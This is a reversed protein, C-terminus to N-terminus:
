LVSVNNWINFFLSKNTVVIKGCSFLYMRITLHFFFMSIFIWHVMVDREAGREGGRHGHLVGAGWRPIDGGSAAHPARWPPVNFVSQPAIIFMANFIELMILQKLPPFGLNYSHKNYLYKQAFLVSNLASCICPIQPPPNKIMFYLSKSINPPLYVFGSDSIMLCRPPNKIVSWSITKDSNKKTRPHTPALLLTWM